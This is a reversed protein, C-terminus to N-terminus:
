SLGSVAKVRRSLAGAISCQIIVYFTGTSFVDIYISTTNNTNSM